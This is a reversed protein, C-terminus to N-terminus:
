PIVEIESLGSLTISVQFDNALYAVKDCCGGDAESESAGRAARLTVAKGLRATNPTTHSTTKVNPARPNAHRKGSMVM